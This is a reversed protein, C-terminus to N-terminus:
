GVSGMKENSVTPETTAMLIDNQNAVSNDTPNDAMATDAAAVDETTANIMSWGDNPDSDDPIEITRVM